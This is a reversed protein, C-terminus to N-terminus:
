DRILSSLDWINMLHSWILIVVTNLGPSRADPEICLFPCLTFPVQIFGGTCGVSDEMKRAESATM